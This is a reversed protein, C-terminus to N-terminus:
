SVGKCAFRDVDPSFNVAVRDLYEHLHDLEDASIPEVMRPEGDVPLHALLEQYQQVEQWLRISDAELQKRPISIPSYLESGDELLQGSPLPTDILPVKNM